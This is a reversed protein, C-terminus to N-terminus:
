GAIDLGSGSLPEPAGFAPDAFSLAQSRAEDELSAEMTSGFSRDLMSKTLSLAGPALHALREAWDAVASNLQAAPVVANVLGIREAENAGVPRALLALQKARHLGVLRPLLWTGGADVTAAAASFSQWFIANDAAIVLDCGLALNCGAGVAAGNVRAISPKPLRHLALAVEGVARMRDLGGAQLAPLTTRDAGACFATGSGTLVLVRDDPNAAVATFVERLEDWMVLDIANRVYPRNLTLTVVGADREVLLTEV